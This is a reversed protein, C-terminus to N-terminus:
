YILPLLRRTRARYAAYGPYRAELWAEERGSKLRFFGLLVAAGVLAPPSAMLLGYGAAGVIIGGYIPHRVLAYSGTDVLSADDRPHPLATLAGRLDVLGRLALVLGVALLGTGAVGTVDRSPGNWTPGVLGAAGVGALLVFQIVVWGEGRPGLAPLRSV